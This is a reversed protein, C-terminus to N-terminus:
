DKDASQALSVQSESVGSSAGVGKGPLSEGASTQAPTPAFRNALLDQRILRCIYDSYAGLPVRRELPSFLRLDLYARLDEPIALHLYTPRLTRKPRAM